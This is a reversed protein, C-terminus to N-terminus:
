MNALTVDGEVSEPFPLPDVFDSDNLVVPYGCNDDVKPSSFNVKIKKKWNIGQSELFDIAATIFQCLDAVEKLTMNDSLKFMKDITAVAPTEELKLQIQQEPEVKKVEEEEKVEEVNTPTAIVPLDPTSVNLGSLINMEKVYARISKKEEEENNYLDFVKIRASGSNLKDLTLYLPFLYKNDQDLDILKMISEVASSLDFVNPAIRRFIYLKPYRGVSKGNDKIYVDHIKKVLDKYLDETTKINLPIQNYRHALSSRVYTLYDYITSQSICGDDYLTYQHFGKCYCRVHSPSLIIFKNKAADMLPSESILKDMLERFPKMTFSKYSM